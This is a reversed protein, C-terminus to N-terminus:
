PQKFIIELAKSGDKAVEQEIDEALRNINKELANMFFSNGSYGERHIKKAIIYALGKISILEGTVLDRPVIGKAKIWPILLERLPRGSSGAKTPGRGKDRWYWYHEGNIEMQIMGPFIKEEGKLSNLLKGTAIAGGSKLNNKADTIIGKRKDELFKITNTFQAM